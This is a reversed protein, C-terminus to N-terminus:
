DVYYISKVGKIKNIKVRMKIGLTTISPYNPRHTAEIIKTQENLFKIKIYIYNVHIHLNFM